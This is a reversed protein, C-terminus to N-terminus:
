YVPVDVCRQYVDFPCTRLEHCRVCATTISHTMGWEPSDGAVEAKARRIDRLLGGINDKLLPHEQREPLQSLELVIEEMTQLHGAADSAATDPSDTVFGLLRVERALKWMLERTRTLDVAPPPTLVPRQEEAGPAPRAPEATKETCAALAVFAVLLRFTRPTSM